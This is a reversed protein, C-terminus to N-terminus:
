NAPRKRYGLKRATSSVASRVRRKLRRLNRALRVSMPPLGFDDPLGAVFPAAWRHFNSDTARVKGPTLHELYREWSLSEWLHTAYSRSLDIPQFPGFILQMDTETFTPWFFASPPLVSLDAPFEKSLRYPIQVSHEDWYGDYGKSRFTRYESYWRKLFPAQPEAIMVANCLGLDKGDVVEKGLVTSHALLPDFSAHVFVDADLYIGGKALLMELRVVDARHAYHVVPNGFIERPATIKQLTILGRSLEWWPGSPEKECYFFVDTPKIREVASRLCVYHILSWPKGGGGPAMGFCYHLTKPIM